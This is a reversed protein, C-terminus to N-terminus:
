GTVVNVLRDPVHVVRAPRRGGLRARVPEAALAAAVAEDRGLGRPVRLRDRVRGDVQVVLEVVDGDRPVTVAPWAQRHVSYARGLRHWLEEAAHPALPALLRVLLERDSAGAGGHRELRAVFAMLAAIATNFRLEDLEATVRAVTADSGPLPDPPEGTAVVLDWVRTLFREVGAVAEPRFDGDASWPRAFLLAMRTVDAGHRRVLDDPNLVNGRSKSMKAGGLTVMGHLRIRPFPEEFPVLGLDHLAMTVFRAYLHHRAVHEPGGAYLDVPLWRATREPDWPRDHVDASPYRLFYWSSDLFTDSVDTERRAAGGCAPCSTAAFADDPEDPLLVPLEDEPVPVEGCAPCHVIPIPPGWSRQRSILWDHLRYTGDGSRGIWARQRNKAADPWDLADLGDLLRDAYDTIRLFWQRMVREIVVTGCRECRGDEVQERALVTGCDPCWLVPAEARYALGARHLQLFIWQTWRYYSPDSTVVEHAWDWAAGISALQRRYAAVTRAILTRPAEGVKRAYNEANIGFSDFGIPQFVTRGRMRQYRGWTDAGSYTMAHGIHLGAASPYPFEVLNYLKTAPEVPAATDVDTLRDDAWRGQWRAEVEAHDYPLGM